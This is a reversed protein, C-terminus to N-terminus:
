VAVAEEASVPSRGRGKSVAMCSNDILCNLQWISKQMWIYTYVDIKNFLIGEHSLEIFM